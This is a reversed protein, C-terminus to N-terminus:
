QPQQRVRSIRLPHYVTQTGSPWSALAGARRRYGDLRFGEDVAAHSFDASLLATVVVDQVGGTHSALSAKQWGGPSRSFVYDNTGADAFPDFASAAPFFFGTAKRSPEEEPYGHDVQRRPPRSNMPKVSM